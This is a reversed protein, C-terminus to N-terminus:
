LIRAAVIIGILVAVWFLFVPWGKGGNISAAEDPYSFVCIGFVIMAAIFFM